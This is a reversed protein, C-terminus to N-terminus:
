EHGPGAWVPFQVGLTLPSFRYLVSSRSATSPLFSPISWLRGGTPPFPHSFAWDRYFLVIEGGISKVRGTQHTSLNFIRPLYYGLIFTVRCLKCVSFLSALYCICPSALLPYSSVHSDANHLTKTTYTHTPPLNGSFQM